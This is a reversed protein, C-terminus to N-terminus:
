SVHLAVSSVLPATRKAACEQPTAPAALSFYRRSAKHPRALVSRSPADPLSAAGEMLFEDGQSGQETEEPAPQSPKTGNIPEPQSTEPPKTPISKGMETERGPREKAVKDPGGIGTVAPSDKELKPSTTPLSSAEVTPQIDSQLETRESTPQSISTDVMSSIEECRFITTLPESGVAVVTTTATYSTVVGTEMGYDTNVAPPQSIDAGPTDPAFPESPPPPINDETEPVIISVSKSPVVKDETSSSGTKLIGRQPKPPLMLNPEYPEEETSPSETENAAAASADGKKSHGLLILVELM